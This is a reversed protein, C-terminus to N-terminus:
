GSIHLTTVPASAFGCTFSPSCESFFGTATARGGHFPPGSTSALVDVLITQVSGTCSAPPLSGFGSAIRTGAAEEVSVNSMTSIFDGAPCTVAVTVRLDVRTVLKADPQIVMSDSTALATTPFLVGAIAAVPLIARFVFRRM